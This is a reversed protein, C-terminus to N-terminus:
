PPEICGCNIGIKLLLGCFMYKDFILIVIPISYTNKFFKKINKRTKTFYKKFLCSDVFQSFNNQWIISIEKPCMFFIYCKKVNLFTIIAIKKLIEGFCIKEYKRVRNVFWRFFNSSTILFHIKIFTVYFISHFGNCIFM